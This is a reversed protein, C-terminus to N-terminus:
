VYWADAHTAGRDCTYGRDRLANEFEDLPGQLVASVCCSLLCSTTLPTPLPEPPRHAAGGHRWTEPTLYLGGLLNNFAHKACGGGEREYYLEGERQYQLENMSAM